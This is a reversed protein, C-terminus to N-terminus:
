VNYDKIKTLLTKYSIGLADAARAKNGDHAELAEAIKRREVFRLSRMVVDQLTGSLDPGNLYQSDEMVTKVFGFDKSELTMTDSLICAREIANELERV